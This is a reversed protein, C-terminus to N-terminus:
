LVSRTFSWSAVPLALATKNPPDHKRSVTESIFSSDPGVNRRINPPAHASSSLAVARSQLARIRPVPAVLHKEETARVKKAIGYANKKQFSHVCIRNSRVFSFVFRADRRVRGLSLLM